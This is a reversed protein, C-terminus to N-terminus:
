AEFEFDGVAWEVLVFVWNLSWFDVCGFCPFYILSGFSVIVWDCCWGAFVWGL